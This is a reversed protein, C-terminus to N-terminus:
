KDFLYERVNKDLNETDKFDFPTKVEKRKAKKVISTTVVRNFGDVVGKPTIKDSIVELKNINGSIVAGLNDRRLSVPEVRYNMTLNALDLKGKANIEEGSMTFNVDSTRLVGDRVAGEFKIKEIKSDFDTRSKNFLLGDAAGKVSSDDINKLVVNSANLNFAGSLNGFVAKTSVGTGSFNADGNVNFKIKNTVNAPLVMYLPFENAELKVEFAVPSHLGATASMRVFGTENAKLNFQNVILNNNELTSKLSVQYFKQNGYTCEACNISLALRLNNALSFDLSNDSWALNSKTNKIDEDKKIYIKDIDLKLSIDTNGNKKNYDLNGKLKNYKSDLDISKISLQNKALVFDANLKLQKLDFYKQKIISITDNFQIKNADDFESKIKGTLKAKSLNYINSIIGQISIMYEQNSLSSTVRVNRENSLDLTLNLKQEKGNYISDAKINIANNAIATKMYINSFDVNKADLINTYIIKGNEVTINKFNLLGKLSNKLKRSYYNSNKVKLPEWNKSGSEDVILNLSPRNIVMEDISFNFMALESLPKTIIVHEIEAIKEDGSMSDVMINEAYIKPNPLLQVQLDGNIKVRHGLFDSAMNEIIGKNNQWNIFTPATFLTIIFLVCITVILLLALQLKKM